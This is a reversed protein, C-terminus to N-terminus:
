SEAASAGLLSRVYDLAELRTHVEGMAQAERLAELLEGIKPGPRLSLQKILDHGTLLAPPSLIEQPRDWWADLLDRIVDLHKRWHQPDLTTGFTGLVDALSLLCVDVGAEGAQRFFRYIARRTPPEPANTFLLPRMHYRVIRQLRDIEENSLRLASGRRAAVEAGLEDHEFFRIRQTADVSRTQPKAVDHFLAALFLLPRLSRDPTFPADIWAGIQERYRGIRVVALGLALSAAKDPEYAPNLVELLAELRAMVDLTHNWVDLTHPPSQEVGKLACLEPFVVELVGLMEMSRLVSAPQRGGLIRFLEDRQREVSVNALRPISKKLEALTQPEIKLNLGVAQRLARLIRNPDNEFSQPTCARLLRARLDLAGKLPDLLTYTRIDLSMANITFDRLALDTELTAGRLGAFDLVLRKGNEDELIIRATEREADLAYYAGGLANALRRAYALTSGDVAFDLDHVPKNQLLDRVAGGVLYVPPADPVAALIRELVPQVPLWFSM